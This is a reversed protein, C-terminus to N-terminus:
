GVGLCHPCYGGARGHPCCVPAKPLSVGTVRMKTIHRVGDDMYAELVVGEVGAGRLVDDPVGPPDDPTWDKPLLDVDREQVGRLLRCDGCMACPRLASLFLGGFNRTVRMVEGAPFTTGGRTKTDHRLRVYRGVWDRKLKPREAAM